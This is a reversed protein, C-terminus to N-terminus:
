KHSESVRFWYWGIFISWIALTFGVSGEYSLGLIDRCFKYSNNLGLSIIILSSFATVIWLVAKSVPHRDHLYVGSRSMFLIWVFITLVWIVIQLRLLQVDWTVGGFKYFLGKGACKYAKFIWLGLNDAQVCESIDPREGFIDFLGESTPEAM